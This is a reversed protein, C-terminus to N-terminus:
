TANRQLTHLEKLKNEANRNKPDLDLSRQYNLIALENNGFIMYGEALSDYPNSADPFEAVNLKFAIIAKQPKKDFLFRYGIYNLLDEGFADQPYTTKLEHYESIFADGGVEQLLEMLRKSLDPFLVRRIAWVVLDPDDSHIKHPSSPTAVFHGEEHSTAWEMLRSIRRQKSLKAWRQFDFTYEGLPSAEKTSALVVQSIASPPTILNFISFSDDQLLRIQEWEAISQDDQSNRIFKELVGEYENLAKIDLGMDVFVQLSDQKKETFDVPDIYVVGAIEEPYTSVFMRVYLGGLSFGVLIFPPEVGISEIANHLLTTVNTPSPEFQSPESEGIGPRDYAIVPAFEAVRELLSGWSEISQGLGNEFIVPPIGASILSRGAIQVCINHDGVKIMKTELDSNSDQQM